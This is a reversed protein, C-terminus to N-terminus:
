QRRAINVSYDQASQLASSLGGASHEAHRSPQRVQQQQQAAAAQAPNLLQKLLHCKVEMKTMRPEKPTKCGLADIIGALVSDDNALGGADEGM